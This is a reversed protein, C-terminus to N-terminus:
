HVYVIRVSGLNKNPTEELDRLRTHSTHSCLRQSHREIRPPNPQLLTNSPASNSARLASEYHAQNITSPVRLLFLARLSTSSFCALAKRTEQPM